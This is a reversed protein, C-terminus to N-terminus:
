SRNKLQNENIMHKRGKKDIWYYEGYKNVYITEGNPGVRDKVKTQAVKSKGKSAVEATKNAAKKVPKQAQLENAGGLCLAFALTMLITKM